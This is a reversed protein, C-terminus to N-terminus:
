PLDARSTGIGQAEVADVACASLSLAASALLDRRTMM